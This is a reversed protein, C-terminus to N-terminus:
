ESYDKFDYGGNYYLQTSILESSENDEKEKHFYGTTTSYLYKWNYIIILFATMGIFIWFTNKINSDIISRRAFVDFGMPNAIDSINDIHELTACPYVTYQKETTFFDPEFVNLDVDVTIVGTIPDLTYKNKNIQYNIIGDTIVITINNDISNYLGTNNNVDDNTFELSSETIYMSGPLSSKKDYYNYKYGCNNTVFLEKAKSNIKEYYESLSVSTTINNNKHREPLKKNFIYEYIKKNYDIYTDFYTKNIIKKQDFNEFHVLNNINLFTLLIIFLGIVITVRQDM